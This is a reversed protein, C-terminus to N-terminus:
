LHNRHSRRGSVLRKTEQESKLKPREGGGMSETLGWYGEFHM